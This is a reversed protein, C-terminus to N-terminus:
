LAEILLFDTGVLVFITTLSSITVATLKVVFTVFEPTKKESSFENEFVVAM